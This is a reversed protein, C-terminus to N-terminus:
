RPSGWLSHIEVLFRRLKAGEYLGTSGPPRQLLNTFGIEYYASVGVTGFGTPLELAMGLPLFAYWRNVPRSAPTLSLGQQQYRYGIAVGTRPYFISWRPGFRFAAEVAKYATTQGQKFDQNVFPLRLEGPAGKYVWLLSGEWGAGWWYSKYCLGIAADSFWGAPVPEGVQTARNFRGQFLIGVGQQAWLVSYLCVWRGCGLISPWSIKM